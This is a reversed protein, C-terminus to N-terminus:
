EGRDWLGAERAAAEIYPRAAILRSFASRWAGGIQPFSHVVPVHRTDRHWRVDVRHACEYWGGNPVDHHYYYAPSGLPAPIEQRTDPSRRIVVGLHVAFQVM